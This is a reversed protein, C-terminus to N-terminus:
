ITWDIPHNAIRGFTVGAAEAEARAVVVMERLGDLQRAHEETDWVSVHVMSGSPAVGAHFSILGPLASIAPVLYSSIRVNMEQVEAYRAPDFTGPSVRVVATPPIPGTAM